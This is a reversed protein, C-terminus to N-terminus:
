KDAQLSGGAFPMQKAKGAAVRLRRLFDSFPRDQKSTVNIAPEAGFLDV